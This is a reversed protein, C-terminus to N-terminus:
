CSFWYLIGVAGCSAVTMWFHVCFIPLVCVCLAAPRLSVCEAFGGIGDSLKNVEAVVENCASEGSVYLRSGDCKIEELGQVTAPAFAAALACVVLLKKIVGTNVM